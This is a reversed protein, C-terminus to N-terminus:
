VTITSAPSYTFNTGDSVWTRFSYEGSPESLIDSTILRIDSTQVDNAAGTFRNSGVPVTNTNGSVYDYGASTIVQQAATSNLFSGNYRIRIRNLPTDIYPIALEIQSFASLPALPAVVGTSASQVAYSDRALEVRPSVSTNYFVITGTSGADSTQPTFGFDAVRPRSARVTTVGSSADVGNITNVAEWSTVDDGIESVFFYSGGGSYVNTFDATRGQGSSASITITESEVVVDNATQGTESVRLYYTHDGVALASVDIATFTHRGIASLTATQLATAATMVRPDVDFLELNFPVDGSSVNSSFTVNSGVIAASLDATLNGSTGSMTHIQRFLGTSVINDADQSNTATLEATRNVTETAAPITLTTTFTGSPPITGSSAGLAGSTLWGMPTTNVVALSFTAGADGTLTVTEIIGPSNFLTSTLTIGSLQPIIPPPTTGSSVFDDTIHYVTDNDRTTLAQYQALTGQWFSKNDAVNEFDVKVVSLPSSSSGDGTLTDDSSVTALGGGSGTMLDAIRDWETNGADWVYVGIPFPGGTTTTDATDLFYVRGGVPNAPLINVALERIQTDGELATNSTTGYVVSLPSTSTGNGTLTADSNVTGGLATPKNQIFADSSTDTENWDSQVNVEAGEAIGNLKALQQPTLGTGTGTGTGPPGQPGTLGRPGVRGFDGLSDNEHLGFRLEQTHHVMDLLELNYTVIGGSVVPTVMDLEKDSDFIRRHDENTLTRADIGIQLFAHGVPLEWVLIGSPRLDDTRRTAGAPTLTGTFATTGTKYLIEPYVDFTLSGVHTEPTATSGAPNQTYTYDVIVSGMMTTAPAELEFSTSTISASDLTISDGTTSRIVVNTIARDFRTDIPLSFTETIAVGGAVRDSPIIDFSEVVNITNEEIITTGGGGVNVTVQENGITIVNGTINSAALKDREADTFANTDSNSEYATKIEAPTQDATAGSEITALKATNIAIDALSAREAATIIRGSGADTVDNLETVSHNAINFTSGSGVGVATWGSGNSAGALNDLKYVEETAVVYCLQGQYPVPEANRDALTQYVARSDLPDACSTRLVFQIDRQLAM